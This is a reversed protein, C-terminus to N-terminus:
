TTKVGVLSVTVQMSRTTYYLLPFYQKSISGYSFRSVYVQEGMLAVQTYRYRMLLATM